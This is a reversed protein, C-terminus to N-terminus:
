IIEIFKQKELEIIAQFPFSQFLISDLTSNNICLFIKYDIGNLTEKNKSIKEKATKLFYRIKANGLIEKNM